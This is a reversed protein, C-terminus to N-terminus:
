LNLVLEVTYLQGTSSINLLHRDPYLYELRQKTNAIGIGEREISPAGEYMKNKCFFRIKGSESKINITITSLEHSSIGYKFVNEIFTMLILPAIKKGELEGSVSFDITVKSSLRLRQLDIYDTICDVERKLPVYDESVDDTVYRMINSLKMISAATNANKTVAMSYINNLTNFLFHPNVQAKLFSLEANVKEAEARAARQETRRWQGILGSIISVSCVMIFLVISIIDIKPARPGAKGRGGRANEFPMPHPPLEHPPPGPPRSGQSLLHEFPQLYFVGALLVLIIFLYLFYNKKLYLQPFLLASNLYFIFIYVAGFLLFYPSFIESIVQRNSFSSSVFGIILSFLLLWGAIHIFVVSPKFSFMLLSVFGSICKLFLM